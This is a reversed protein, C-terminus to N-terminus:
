ISWLNVSSSQSGDLGYLHLGSVISAWKCAHIVWVIPHAPMAPKYSAGNYLRIEEVVEDPTKDAILHELYLAKGLTKHVNALLAKEATHWIDPKPRM